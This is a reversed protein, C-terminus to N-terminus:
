RKRLSRASKRESAWAFVALLGFYLRLIRMRKM